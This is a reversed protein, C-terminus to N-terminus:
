GKQKKKKIPFEAVVKKKKKKKKEEEEEEEAEEEEEEEAPYLAHMHMKRIGVRRTSDFSCMVDIWRDRDEWGQRAPMAAALFRALTRFGFVTASRNSYM